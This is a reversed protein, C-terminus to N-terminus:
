DFIILFGGCHLKFKRSYPYALAESLVLSSFITFCKSKNSKAMFIFNIKIGKKLSLVIHFINRRWTIFKKIFKM